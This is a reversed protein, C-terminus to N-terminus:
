FRSSNDVVIDSLKTYEICVYMTRINRLSGVLTNFTTSTFDVVDVGYKELNDCPSVPFKNFRDINSETFYGYSNIVKDFNSINHNHAIYGTSVSSLIILKQYIKKGNLKRGTWNESTTINGIEVVSGNEFKYM